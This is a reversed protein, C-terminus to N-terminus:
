SSVTIRYFRQDGIPTADVFEAISGDGILPDGVPIFGALDDSAQLQYFRGVETDFRIVFGGAARPSIQIGLDIPTTGGSSELEVAGIDPAAGQPRAIGRQDTATEGTGGADIVSSGALPLMTLTTGGNDALPGLGADANGTSDGTEVFISLANGSGIFNHGDSVFSNTAGIFAIDIDGNGVVISNSLVTTTFTDGSAGVGAARGPTATNGIITCHTIETRAERNFIAGGRDGATNGTFTSNAIVCIISESHIAGGDDGASNNTFTSGTVRLSDGRRTDIAGGDASSDSAVNGTFVCDVVTCDGFNELGAGGSDGQNDIFRCSEILLEGLNSVASSANGTNREFTVNSLISEEDSRFRVGGGGENDSVVSDFMKITVGPPSGVAFPQPGIGDGKNRIITCGRFVINSTPNVASAGSSRTMNSDFLTGEIFIPPFRDFSFAQLGAGAGGSSNGIFQCDIIRLAGSTHAIGGGGSSTSGASGTVRNGSFLVRVVTVSAAGPRFVEDDRVFFGARTHLGAGSSEAACDTISCDFLTLDSGLNLIGAGDDDILLEGDEALGRTLHLNALLLSETGVEIFIVRSTDGADITVGDALASADISVIGGDVVLEGQQLSITQGNMGPSFIIHNEEPDPVAALAERLSNGPAGLVDSATDVIRFPGSEIAGLDPAPTGDGDGDKNRAHGRQDTLESSATAADIVPSGVRPRMSPLSGGYTGLPLLEAGDILRNVGELTDVVGALNSGTNDAVICNDLTLDTGLNAIGAGSPATNASITCQTFRVPLDGSHHIAGGAVGARNVSFTCTRVTLTGTNSIAGGAGTAVNESFLCKDLTLSGANFFGGGTSAVGGTIHMNSISVVRNPNTIEFVGNLGDATVTIGGEPGIITVSRNIVIPGETLHITAGSLDDAFVIVEGNFATEIQNRLGGSRTDRLDTVTQLARAVPVASLALVAAVFVIKASNFHVM